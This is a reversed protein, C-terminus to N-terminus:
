ARGRSPIFGEGVPANERYFTLFLRKGDNGRLRSDLLALFSPIGAEAPIVDFVWYVPKEAAQDLLLFRESRGGDM